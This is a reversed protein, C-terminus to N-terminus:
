RRALRGDGGLRFCIPMACSSSRRTSRLCYAATLVVATASRSTATRRRRRSEAFARYPTETPELTALARRARPVYYTPYYPIEWVLLPALTDFVLHDRSFLACGSRAIIEVRVRGRDASEPTTM